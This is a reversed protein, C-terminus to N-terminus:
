IEEVSAPTKHSKKPKGLFGATQKKSEKQPSRNSHTSIHLDPIKKKKRLKYVVWVLVSFLMFSVVHM